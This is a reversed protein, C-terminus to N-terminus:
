DVETAFWLAHTHITERHIRPASMTATKAVYRAMYYLVSQSNIPVIQTARGWRRRFSLFPLDACEVPRHVYGVHVSKRCTRSHGFWPRCHLRVPLRLSRQPSPPKRAAFRLILGLAEDALMVFPDFRRWCVAVAQMGEESFAALPLILQRMYGDVPRRQEPPFRLM